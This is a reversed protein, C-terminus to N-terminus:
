TSETRYEPVSRGNWDKWATVGEVSRDALGYESRVGDIRRVQSVVRKDVRRRRLERSMITGCWRYVYMSREPVEVSGQSGDHGRLDDGDKCSREPEVRSGTTRVEPRSEAGRRVWDGSLMRMNITL